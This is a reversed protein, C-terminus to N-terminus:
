LFMAGDHSEPQFVQSLMNKQQNKVVLLSQHAKKESPVWKM